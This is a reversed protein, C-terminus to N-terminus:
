SGFDEDKDFNRLCGTCQFGILEDGQFHAYVGESDCCPSFYETAAESFDESYDDEIIKM